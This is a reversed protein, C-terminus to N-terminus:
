VSSMKSIVSKKHNKLLQYNESIKRFDDAACVLIM